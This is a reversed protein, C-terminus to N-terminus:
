MKRLMHETQCVSLQQIQNGCIIYFRDGFIYNSNDFAFIFFAIFLGASVASKVGIKGYPFALKGFNGNGNSVFIFLPIALLNGDM